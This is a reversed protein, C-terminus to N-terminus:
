LCALSTVLENVNAQGAFYGNVFVKRLASSLPILLLCPEEPKWSSGFKWGGQHVWRGM